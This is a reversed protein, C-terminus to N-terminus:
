TSKSSVPGYTASVPSLSHAVPDGVVGYMRTAADVQHVGERQALREHGEVAIGNGRGERAGRGLGDREDDVEPLPLRRLFREKARSTDLMRRPQDRTGRVSAGFPSGVLIAMSALALLFVALTADNSPATM